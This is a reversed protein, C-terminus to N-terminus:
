KKLEREKILDQKMDTVIYLFGLGCLVPAAITPVLFFLLILYLSINKNWKVMGIMLAAIYGFVGLYLMAMTLAILLVTQMTENITVYRSFCGLSFVIFAFYGSWKSPNWASLPQIKHVEVKLRRLLVNSLVHVLIGEMVGTLVTAIAFLVMVFKGLSMSLQANIGPLFENILQEYIMLDASVNFGFFSAFVVTTLVTFLVSVFITLSLLIGNKVKKRVLSGYTIGVFMSTIIYFWTQPLAFMFSVFFVSACVVLSSKFDYRASYVVLPIPLAFLFYYEIMGGTQRNILLVIAYLACMMAGETIKRVNHNM